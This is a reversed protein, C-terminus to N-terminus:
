GVLALPLQREQRTAQAAARAAKAAVSQPRFVDRLFKAAGEPDKKARERFTSARAFLANPYTEALVNDLEFEKICGLTDLVDAAARWHNVLEDVANRAQSRPNKEVGAAMLEQILKCLTRHEKIVPEIAKWIESNAHAERAFMQLFGESHRSWDCEKLNIRPMKCVGNSLAKQAEESKLSALMVSFLNEWGGEDLSLAKIRSPTALVAGTIPRLPFGLDVLKRYANIIQKMRRWDFVQHKGGVSSEFPNRRRHEVLYFRGDEPVDKLPITPMSNDDFRWYKVNERAHLKEPRITAGKAKARRLRVVEPLEIDSANMVPVGGLADALAKAYALQKPQRDKPAGAVSLVVMRRDESQAILEKIREHTHPADGVVVKVDQEFTVRARETTSGRAINGGVVEKRSVTQAREGVRYLHVRAGLANCSELGQPLPESVYVRGVWRPVEIYDVSFETYADMLAGGSLGTLQLFHTIENVVSRPLSKAFRRLEVRRDWDRVSRDQIKALVMEALEKAVGELAKILNKRTYPDYELEERSATPMVSGIPMDLVLDSALLARIVRDQTGLREFSLPYCVNGMVVKPGHLGEEIAGLRFNSGRIKYEPETVADAGLLIPKVRFWRFVLKAKKRFEDIDKPDVPFSVMMGSPWDPDAPEGNGLQTIVPSGNAGIHATYFRKVGDKVATVMFSDTYSFPSKSGLGFAGTLDNSDGKNSSFYTTFLGTVEEHSLGVGWDKIYFSTDLATPLKVEIPRDPTGAAIHSDAANCGIERLVASIKDSYLGSSLIRFAQASAKIAFNAESTVGHSAIVNSSGHLVKM